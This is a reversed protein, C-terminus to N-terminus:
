RDGNGQILPVQLLDKFAAIYFDAKASPDKNFAVTHIGVAHAGDLESAKHGVFITQAPTVGLQDLAAQYIKPDPKCTGIEKSSIITDWVQGFGGKEFWGLKVFVPQATDTVIGLYFGARELAILTERVGPFFTVDNGEAELIAKGRAIDEARTIGCLRVTEEYYQDLSILGRFARANLAAKEADTIMRAPCDIEHFFSRLREGASLRHYLVDGADFLIARIEAPNVQPQERACEARLIDLLETMKHIVADPTAGEDTEGHKFDHEIQIALHYGARRAGLIDRNIRDGIYVCESAPVNALRAAYHFISPDPKRRGYICSIVIPDFYDAIGYEQLNAAVQGRSGANSILGIKLGMQRIAELTAPIEPRMERHYYNLEVYVMLDEATQDTLCAAEKFGNLIFERWIRLAPLENLTQMSWVHYTELGSAVIEYLQEDDLHLDVGADLLRTQLGPTAKLRLERTHWFTQITGGMDFLVAKITM